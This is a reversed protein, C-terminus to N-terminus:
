GPRNRRERTHYDAERVFLRLPEPFAAINRVRRTADALVAFSPVLLWIDESFRDWVVVEDFPM